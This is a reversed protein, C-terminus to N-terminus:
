NCNTNRYEVVWNGRALRGIECFFKPSSTCVFTGWKKFSESRGGHLPVCFRSGVCGTVGSRGRDSLTHYIYFIKLEFLGCRDMMTLQGLHHIFMIASIAYPNPLCHVFEWNMGPPDFVGWWQSTGGILSVNAYNAPFMSASIFKKSNSEIM